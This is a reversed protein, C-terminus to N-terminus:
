IMSAPGCLAHLAVAAGLVVTLSHQCFLASRFPFVCFGLFTFLVGDIDHIWLLSCASAFTPFCSHVFPVQDATERM